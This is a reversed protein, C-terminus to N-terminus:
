ALKPTEALGVLFDTRGTRAVYVNQNTGSTARVFSEYLIGLVKGSGLVIEHTNEAGM